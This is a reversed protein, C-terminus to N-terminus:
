QHEPRREQEGFHKARNRGDNLHGARSPLRTLGAQCPSLPFLAGDNVIVGEEDIATAAADIRVEVGKRELEEEAKRALAAPFAPLIRPGAELLVIRTKLTDIHRYEPV